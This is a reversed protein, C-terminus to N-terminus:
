AADRLRPTHRPLEAILRGPLVSYVEPRLPSGCSECNLAQLARADGWAEFEGPCAGSTCTLVAYLTMNDLDERARRVRIM